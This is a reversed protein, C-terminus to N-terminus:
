PTRLARFHKGREVAQIAVVPRAADLDDRHVNVLVAAIRVREQFCVGRANAHEEIRAGPCECGEARGAHWRRKQDIAPTDKTVGMLAVGVHTGRLVPLLEVREEGFGGSLRRAGQLLPRRLYLKATWAVANKPPPALQAQTPTAPM